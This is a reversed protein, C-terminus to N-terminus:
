KQPQPLEWTTSIWALPFQSPDSLEDELEMVPSGVDAENTVFNLNGPM